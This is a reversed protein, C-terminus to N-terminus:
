SKNIYKLSLVHMHPPQLLPLPLSLPLSLIELLRGALCPIWCLAQDWSGLVMVGTSVLLRISLCSLWGHAGLWM